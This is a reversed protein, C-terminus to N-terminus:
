ELTLGATEFDALVLLILFVNPQVTFFDPQPTKLDPDFEL